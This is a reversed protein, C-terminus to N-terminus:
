SLEQDIFDLLEDATASELRATVPAGGPVSAAGDATSRTHARDLLSRLREAVGTATVDEARAATLMRELRDLEALLAAGADGHGQDAGPGRVPGPGDAEGATTLRPLLHHTLAAPSPHDFVTTAPLTLGTSTSLRNRLELATLSDLGQEMFGRHADIAELGPLALITATHRRIHDLLANFRQPPALAGLRQSLSPGEEVTAAVARTTAALRQWLPLRPLQRQDLLATLLLAHPPLAAADFLELAEPTSMPAIANRAMRAKDQDDLHSTMGSTQQWLGWALSTAPQNHHRRHHALADLYTNATSYNAQGPSGLISGASSFLLFVAPDHPLTHHHLHHATTAKSTLVTTLQHPTLHTLTADDLHGTAHIVATLPHETPIDALTKALAHPDTLDCATITAQAGTQTLDHHLAPATPANPGQRSLLLFHRMHHHHALHRAILGGLTGTGGTILVTGHPNVPRPIRIVNKGTHRAQSMHRLAQPLRALDWETRPLPTLAQHTFLTLLHHLMEGTRTPGAEKLDFARYTIGPHTATIQQPTRIDTKGMEIYRGGRPTLLRLSADVFEGSLSGLVIDMGSGGTHNLYQEAFDTTRSSAIREEPIGLATLTHWKAPSATTYVDAGFHRALQTAAMGVGGAAAHILVRQGPQIQALDHLAYYATLFVAPVSAAQEFSWGAPIPALMREDAITRVAFAAPFAGLVRDGVAFRSVGPGTETVVGAGEAGLGDASDVMGLAVAVDYFNLGAARVEIRVEGPKLPRTAAEHPTKALADLSGTGQTTVRWTDGAGFGSVGHLVGGGTLARVLRPAHLQGDRWALQPEGSVSLAGLLANTDAHQHPDLDLLTFRDPHESQATRVMGWVGSAALDVVDAGADPGVGTDVAVAGRTVVALRARALRDEALWAQLAALVATSVETVDRDRGSVPLVVVQVSAPVDELDTVAPLGWTDAEGSDQPRWVITDAPQPTDPTPLAPWSLAFLGRAAATSTSSPQLEAPDLRRATLQEVVALPEGAVDYLDMRVSGEGLPTIRVRARTAGTALLRVGNWAFPLWVGDQDLVKSFQLLHAAADCLAPHLGFRAAEQVVSEPLAIEGYVTDGLRWAARVGQFVPGYGYGREALEGYLGSVDIVGAGVPPWVGVPPVENPGGPAVVAQAHRTWISDTGSPRSCLVVQRREDDGVPEIVIQVDVHDTDPLVLPAQVVLEEIVQCGVEDAARLVLDMFGTGPFLVQGSVAHDALWRHTTTSLRGSLVVTDNSSVEIAVSLVPHEVAALGAQAADATSETRELWFRSRDFAYTPLEVPQTEPLLVPWTIDVGTTWLTGASTLFRRLGGDDRRLTGSVAVQAGPVTELTQEVGPVLVPHASCEVLATFGDQALRRVAQEFEVRGRLNAYWYGGDMEPGALVEGTLTSYVPVRGARPAVGALAAEIRKRVQEVHVSHSAYDVDIRRARVGGAVLGAVLGAVEEAGGSVVTSAPGNVAAVSVSELQAIREEVEARGLAVSAMAGQGCIEVLAQSRAVVVRLADELCLVGAVHAAAIEGQSHGVVASPVVGVSEWLRALAVMVTFMVPQVVDVRDFGPAGAAGQLVDVVSWGALEEVVASCEGVAEAFVDSCGLLEVGMGVWQWGQGPFVFAVKPRADAVGRAAGAPLEDALFERLRNSLEDTSEGVVALRHRLGDRGALAVAVSELGVDPREGVFSVLREVQGRLGGPGAGSVVWPVLRSGGDVVPEVASEEAAPAEEVIVHANTGSVGFSSVGARRVREGRPWAVGESLLSVDGDKWDIMPTPEDAYLSPPLMDNRLAMVTKIVGAVGAAAQAHGINSKVSGLWLPRGEPRDKGYTAILAQAEIPDGLKTGTGHAEVADVDQPQLGANELAAKIVRQQSPGNPATLGNSAGDQNVASGRVVGLIRHGNRRADSLREVALVGVGEGASFGDASAAFPKCRGDEALGRQRSFEVFAAPNALVMVGSALALSCEGQRLAQVALHLAVLSSSCATDVSVSPGEFGFTYSVRGSLVSAINGTLSYGEVNDPVRGPEPIYGSNSVGVFVGTRSGRLDEAKLGARELAEWSVELLLRQQPDM